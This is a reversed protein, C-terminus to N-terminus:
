HGHGVVCCPSNSLPVPADPDSNAKEGSTVAASGLLIRSDSILIAKSGSPSLVLSFLCLRLQSILGYTSKQKKTNFPSLNAGFGLKHTRCGLENHTLDLTHTFTRGLSSTVSPVLPCPARCRGPFWQYLLKPTNGTNLVVSCRPSLGSSLQLYAALLIVRTAWVLQFLLSLNSAQQNQLSRVVGLTLEITKREWTGTQVDLREEMRNTIARSSLNGWNSPGAWTPRPLLDCNGVLQKITQVRASCNISCRAARGTHSRTQTFFLGPPPDSFSIEQPMKNPAPAAPRPERMLYLPM